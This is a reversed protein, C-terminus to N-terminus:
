MGIQRPRASQKDKEDKFKELEKWAEGLFDLALREAALVQVDRQGRFKLFYGKVLEYVADVMAEDKVFREIKSRQLDNM